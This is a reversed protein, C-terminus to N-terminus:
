RLSEALEKARQLSGAGEIRYTVGDEVWLLVNGALRVTEQRVDGDGDGDDYFFLHPEGSIWFAESSRVSTYEIDSGLTLLKKVYDAPVDAVFQAVLLDVDALTQADEPYVVSVMGGAGISADFYFAPDGPAAEPALVSLSSRESAEARSVPDGLPIQTAPRPTVGPDDDFTVRIGVVGLLDAVARRATVSVSLAVTLALALAFTAALVPRLVPPRTRPLRIEAVPIPGAEIRARVSEALAPTEPWTAEPAAGELLAALARDHRRIM